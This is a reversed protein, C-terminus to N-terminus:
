VTRNLQEAPGLLAALWDAVTRVMERDSVPLNAPRSFFWSRDLLALAALGLTDPTDTPVRQRAQIRTGLAWATRMQMRQADAQTQEDTPASQSASFIFPGHEDMIAFYGAVWDALDERNVASPLDDWAEIANLVARYAAVGLANFIEQKDRFYTYFGARSIACAATIQAIRTGAYGHELFLERSAALIRMRTRAARPGLDATGALDTGALDTGVLDATSVTGGAAEASGTRVTAPSQPGSM